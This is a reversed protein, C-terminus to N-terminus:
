NESSEPTEVSLKSDIWILKAEPMFSKMGSISGIAQSQDGGLVIPYYGDKLARLTQNRLNMASAMSNNM